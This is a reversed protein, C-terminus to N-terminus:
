SNISTIRLLWKCVMWHTLLQVIHKGGIRVGMVVGTISIEMLHGGSVPTVVMNDVIGSMYALYVATIKVNTVNYYVYNTIILIIALVYFRNMRRMTRRLRKQACNVHEVEVYLALIMDLVIAVDLVIVVLDVVAHPDLVLRYKGIYYEEVVIM